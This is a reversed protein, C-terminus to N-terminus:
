FNSHQPKGLIIIIITIENVDLLKISARYIAELIFCALVFIPLCHEGLYLYTLEWSTLPTVHVSKFELVKKVLIKESMTNKSLATFV